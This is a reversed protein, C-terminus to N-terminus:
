KRKADIPWNETWHPTIERLEQAWTHENYKDYIDPPFERDEIWARLNYLFIEIRKERAENKM